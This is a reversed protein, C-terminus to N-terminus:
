LIGLTINYREGIGCPIYMFIEGLVVPSVSIRVCLIEEDLLGLTIFIRMYGKM